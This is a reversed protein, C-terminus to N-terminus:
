DGRSKKERGLMAALFCSRYLLTGSVQGETSQRKAGRDRMERTPGTMICCMLGSHEDVMPLGLIYYTCLRTPHACLQHGGTRPDTVLRCCHGAPRGVTMVTRTNYIGHMADAQYGNDSQQMNRAVLPACRSQLPELTPIQYLFAYFTVLLFIITQQM